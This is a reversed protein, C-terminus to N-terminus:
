SRRDPSQLAVFEVNRRLEYGLSLYLDIARANAASTHLFPEDGRARIQHSVARILRTALGQRRHAPETCVASIETWGPPHLREGAMAVLRGGRQLGLYTGLRYTESRFPGPETRAVLDAAEAADDPGIVVAEDDPESRHAQTAVMQVGLIMEEILWGDPVSSTFGPPGSLVVTQRDGYLSHLDAWAQEDDSSSIAAFPSLEAPYRRAQGTGQSFRSHPGILSTWAPRDLPHADPAANTPASASDSTALTMLPAVTDSM